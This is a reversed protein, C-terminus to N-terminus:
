TFLYREDSTGQCRCNTRSGLYDLWAKREDSTLADNYLNSQNNKQDKTATNGLWYNRSSVGVTWDDTGNTTVKVFFIYSINGLATYLQYICFPEEGGREESARGSRKMSPYM